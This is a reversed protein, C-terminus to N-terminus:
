TKKSMIQKKLADLHKINVEGLYYKAMVVGIDHVHNIDNDVLWKLITRKESLDKNIEAETLGTYLHLTSITRKMKNVTKLKDKPVDLQMIVNPDGADTLEAIQM